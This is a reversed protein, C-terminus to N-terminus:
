LPGDLDINVYNVSLLVYVSSFDLSKLIPDGEDCVMEYRKCFLSSNKEM